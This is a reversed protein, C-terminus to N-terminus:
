ILSCIQDNLRQYSELIINPEEICAHKFIGKQLNALTVNAFESKTLLGAQYMELRQRTILFGIIRSRLFDTEIEPVGLMEAQRKGVLVLAEIIAESNM